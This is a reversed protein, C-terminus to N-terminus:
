IELRGLDMAAFYATRTAETINKPINCDGIQYFEPALFRLEDAAEREPRMGLACIVTDGTLEVTEGGKECVAGTETVRTVRTELSVEIGLRKIELGISQGQLINGGDNLRDAMEVIRVKKGLGALYIGLEAGVLGGGLILVSEGALEPNIYVEEATKVNDGDIGPIPPVSPRAGTAAIIVDPSLEEAVRANVETNLMVRIPLKAVTRKQLEIYEHLHKKFPVNRECLLVGGLEGRKECLTVEHGRRAATVAAEM